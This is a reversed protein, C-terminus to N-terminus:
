KEFAKNEYSKSVSSLKVSLASNERSIVRSKSQRERLKFYKYNEKNSPVYIPVDMLTKIKPHLDIDTIKRILHGNENERESMKDLM